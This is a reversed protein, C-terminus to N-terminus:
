SESTDIRHWQAQHTTGIKIDKTNEILDSAAESSIKKLSELKRMRRVYFVIQTDFKDNFKISVIKQKGNLIEFEFVESEGVAVGINYVPPELSQEYTRLWDVIM